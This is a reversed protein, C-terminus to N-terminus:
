AFSKVDLCNIDLYARVHGVLVVDVPEELVETGAKRDLIEDDLPDDVADAPQVPPEVALHVLGELAEPQVVALPLHEPREPARALRM